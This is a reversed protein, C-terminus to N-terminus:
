ADPGGVLEFENSHMWDEGLGSPDNFRFIEDGCGDDDVCVGIELVEVIIPTGPMIVKDGIEFKAM